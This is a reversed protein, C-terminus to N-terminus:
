PSEIYKASGIKILKRKGFYNNKNLTQNNKYKNIQPHKLM